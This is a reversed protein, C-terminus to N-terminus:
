KGNRSFVKWGSRRVQYHSPLFFAATLLGPIGSQRIFLSVILMTGTIVWKSSACKPHFDLSCYFFSSRVLVLLSSSFFLAFPAALASLLLFFFVFCGSVSLVWANSKIQMRVGYLSMIRSFINTKLYYLNLLRSACLKVDPFFVEWWKKCMCLNM